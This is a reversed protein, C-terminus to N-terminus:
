QLPEEIEVKNFILLQNIKNDELEIYANDERLKVINPIDEINFQKVYEKKDIVTEANKKINVEYYYIKANPTYNYTKYKSEPIKGIENIDYPKDAITINDTGINMILYIKDKQEEKETFYRVVDTMYSESNIPAVQKSEIVVEKEPAKNFWSYITDYNVGICIFLLGIIVIIVAKGNM